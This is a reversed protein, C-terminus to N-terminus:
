KSMPLIQLLILIYELILKFIKPIYLVNRWVTRFWHLTTFVEAFVFIM